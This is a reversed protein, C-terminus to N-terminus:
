MGNHLKSNWRRQHILNFPPTPPPLIDQTVKMLSPRGLHLNSPMPPLICTMLFTCASQTLFPCALTVCTCLSHHCHCLPIIVPTTLLVWWIVAKSKFSPVRMTLVLTHATTSMMTMWLIGYPRHLDMTTLCPPNPGLELFDLSGSIENSMRELHLWADEFVMQMEYSADCDIDWTEFFSFVEEWEAPLLIKSIWNRSISFCGESDPHIILALRIRLYPIMAQFRILLNRTFAVHLLLQKEDTGPDHHYAVQMSESSENLHRPTNTRGASTSPSVIPQCESETMQTTTSTRLM